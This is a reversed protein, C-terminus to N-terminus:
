IELVLVHFGEFIVLANQKIENAQTGLSFQKFPIKRQIYIKLLLWILLIYYEYFM